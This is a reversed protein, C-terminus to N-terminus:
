LYTTYKTGDFFEQYILVFRWIVTRWLLNMQLIFFPM